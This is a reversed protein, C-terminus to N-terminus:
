YIFIFNHIGNMWHILCSPLLSNYKRNLLGMIISILIVYVTFIIKNYFGDVFYSHIFGFLVAQFVNSLWFAITNNKIIKTLLFGRFIIEEAFIRVTNFIFFKTAYKNDFSDKTIFHPNFLLDSQIIFLLINSIICVFLVLLGFYLYEKKKNLENFSPTLISMFGSKGFKLFSFLSFSILYYFFLNKEDLLAYLIYSLSLFILFVYDKLNNRLYITKM